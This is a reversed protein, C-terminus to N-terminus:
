AALAYNSEGAKVEFAPKYAGVILPEALKVKSTDDMKVTLITSNFLDAYAVDDCVGIEVLNLSTITNLNQLYDDYSVGLSGLSNIYSVDTEIESRSVSRFYDDLSKLIDHEQNM